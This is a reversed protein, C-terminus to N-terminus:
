SREMNRLRLEMEKIKMKHIERMQLLEEKAKSKEIEQIECKLKAEKLRHEMEEKQLQMISRKIDAENTSVNTNPQQSASIITSSPVVVTPSSQINSTQPAFTLSSRKEKRPQGTHLVIQETQPTIIINGDNKMMKITGPSLNNKLQSYTIYTTTPATALSTAFTQSTSAPVTVITGTVQGPASIAVISPDSTSTTTLGYDLFM